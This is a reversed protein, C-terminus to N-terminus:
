CRLEPNNNTHSFSRNVVYIPPQSSHWLPLFDPEPLRPAVSCNHLYTRSSREGGPRVLVPSCVMRGVVQCPVSDPGEGVCRSSRQRAPRRGRDATTQVSRKASAEGPVTLPPLSGWALGFLLRPCVRGPCDPVAEHDHCPSTRNVPGPHPRPHRSIATRSGQKTVARQWLAVELWHVPLPISLPQEAPQRPENSLVGGHVSQVCFLPRHLGMRSSAAVEEDALWSLKQRDPHATPEEARIVNRPPCCVQGYQVRHSGETRRRSGDAGDSGVLWCLCLLNVM